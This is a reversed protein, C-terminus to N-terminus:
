PWMPWAVLERHPLGDNNWRKLIEDRISLFDDIKLSEVHADCFLVNFRANHRRQYVGDRWGAVTTGPWDRASWSPINMLYLNWEGQFYNVGNYFNHDLISDAMAIMNEPYVVRAERIAPILSWDGHPPTARIGGLGLGSYAYPFNGGAGGSNYSYSGCVPPYFRHWGPLSDYSPCNYVSNFSASAQSYWGIPSRQKEGVYPVIAQAWWPPYADFDHRYLQFAIGLQRLNSRCGATRASEKARALPPLILAVLISIIAIVVLLEVLTFAATNCGKYLGPRHVSPSHGRLGTM